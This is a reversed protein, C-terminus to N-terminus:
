FLCKYLLFVKKLARKIKSEMFKKYYMAFEMLRFIKSTITTFIINSWGTRNFTKHGYKSLKFM